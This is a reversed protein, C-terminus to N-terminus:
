RAVGGWRARLADREAAAVSGVLRERREGATMPERTAVAWRLDVTVFSRDGATLAARVLHAEFGAADAQLELRDAADSEGAERLATAASACETAATELETLLAAGDWGATRPAVADGPVVRADLHGADAFAAELVAHVSDDFTRVLARRAADLAARPTPAANLQEVAAAISAGVVALEATPDPALGIGNEWLLDEVAHVDAAWLAVAAMRLDGRAALEHSLGEYDPRSM